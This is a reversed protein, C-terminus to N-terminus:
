EFLGGQNPEVKISDAVARMESVASCVVCSAPHTIHYTDKIFHTNDFKDRVVVTVQLYTITGSEHISLLTGDIAEYQGGVRVRVDHLVWEKLSDMM